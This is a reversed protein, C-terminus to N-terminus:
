RLVEAGYSELDLWEFVACSASPCKWAPTVLGGASVSHTAPELDALSGCGPCCVCDAGSTTESSWEGPSLAIAPALLRKLRLAM